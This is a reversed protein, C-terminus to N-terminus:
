RLKAVYLEPKPHILYIGRVGPCELPAANIGDWGLCPLQMLLAAKAKVRDRSECYAGKEGGIM